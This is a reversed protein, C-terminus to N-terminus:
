VLDDTAEDEDGNGDGDDDEDEDGDESNGLPFDFIGDLEDDTLARAETWSTRGAYADAVMIDIASGHEDSDFRRDDAWLQVLDCDQVGGISTIAM